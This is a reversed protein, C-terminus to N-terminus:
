YSRWIDNYRYKARIESETENRDLNKISGSNDHNQIKGKISSRMVDDVIQYKARTLSTNKIGKYESHGKVTGKIDITMGVKLEYSETKYNYRPSSSKWIYTNHNEDKMVLFLQAGYNSDMIKAVVITVQASIRDGISGQYESKENELKWKATRAESNIEKYIIREKALYGYFSGKPGKYKYTDDDQPTYPNLGFIGYDMFQANMKKATEIAKKRANSWNRGANCIYSDGRMLRVGPIIYVWSNRITYQANKDGSGIYIRNIGYSYSIGDKDIM